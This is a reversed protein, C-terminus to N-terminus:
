IKTRHNELLITTKPKFFPDLQWVLVPKQDVELIRFVGFGDEIKTRM